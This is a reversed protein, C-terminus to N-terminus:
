IINLNAFEGHYKLATKNYAEAAEEETKYCGINILVGNHRLKACWPKRLSVGLYKSTSGRASKRNRANQSKNCARINVSRNDLSDGNIHDGLINSDTLGLIERHMLVIHQKGAVTKNRAAYIKTGSKRVHWKYKNLEKYASSDVTAQKGQSLTITKM